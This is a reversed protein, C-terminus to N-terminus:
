QARRYGWAEAITDGFRVREEEALDQMVRTAALRTAASLDGWEDIEGPPVRTYGEVIARDIDRRRQEALREDEVVIRAHQAEAESLEDVLKHLLEKTTV